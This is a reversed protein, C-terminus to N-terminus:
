GLIEKLKPFQDPERGFKVSARAGQILATVQRALEQYGDEGVPALGHALISSNRQKLANSLPNRAQMYAQGLPDGLGILLAYADQLGLKIKADERDQQAEYPQRLGEPVKQLDLDSTDLDYELLLRQQALLEVARYLRATADDYRSRAARREANRILDFVAEYGLPRAQGNLFRLFEGLRGLKGYFPQLLRAALAHDFRDWADFGRCLTIRVQIAQRFSAPLAEGRAFQELTSEASRYAFSDFLEEALALRREARVGLTDVPMASESRDAVRVLDTRPGSVLSLECDGRELATLVLASSMTKTGGTYDALMRASPFRQRLDAMVRRCTAYCETLDDPPVTAVEYQDAQLGVQVVISPKGQKPEIVENCKPCRREKREDAVMGAGDVTRRSGAKGGDDQSAIFAVFDPRYDKIATVIPASSGGVAIVLVTTMM